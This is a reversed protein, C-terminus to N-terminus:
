IVEIQRLLCGEIFNLRKPEGPRARDHHLIENIHAAFNEPTKFQSALEQIRNQIRPPVNRDFAQNVMDRVSEVVEGSVRMRDELVQTPHKFPKKATHKSSVSSSYSASLQVCKSASPSDDLAVQVDSPRAKPLLRGKSDRPRKASTKGGEVAAMRQEHVWDLYQSSGRVYVTDESELSALGAEILKPASKLSDFLPKPVLRRGEKWFTQALRWMRTAAGDAADEDGVLQILRSRRPDTWWQEEINIRAM